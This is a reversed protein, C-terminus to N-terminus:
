FVIRNLACEPEEPFDIMAATRGNQIVEKVAVPDAFRNGNV